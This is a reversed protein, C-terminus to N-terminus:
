SEAPPPVVLVPIPSTRVIRETVSGLLAREVGRRGNTGIVILDAGIAKGVSIVDAAPAGKQIVSEAVVGREKLGEILRKMETRAFALVAEEGEGLLVPVEPFGFLPIDHIHVLTLHAGLAKALDAAVGIAHESPKSFDTPALIHNAM